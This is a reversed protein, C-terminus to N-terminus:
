NNDPLSVTVLLEKNKRTITVNNGELSRLEYKEKTNTKLTYGLQNAEKYFKTFIDIPLVYKIATIRDNAHIIRLQWGDSNSISDKSENLSWGSKPLASLNANLLQAMKYVNIDTALKMNIEQQAVDSKEISIYYLSESKGIRLNPMKFRIEDEKDTYSVTVGSSDTTTPLSYYGIEKVTNKIDDFVDKLTTQLWVMYIIQNEDFYISVFSLAKHLTSPEYAWNYSTGYKDKKSNLFTFGHSTLVSDAGEFDKHLLSAFATFRIQSYANSSCALLIIILLKKM